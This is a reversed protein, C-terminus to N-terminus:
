VQVQCSRRQFVAGIFGWGPPRERGCASRVLNLYLPFVACVAFLAVVIFYAYQASKNTSVALMVWPWIGAGLSCISVLLGCVLATWWGLGRLAIAIVINPIGGLLISLAMTVQQVMAASPFSVSSIVAALAIGTGCALLLIVRPPIFLSALAFLFQGAAYIATLSTQFEPIPLELATKTRNSVVSLVSGISTRLSALAGAACFSSLAAIGLSVVIVPVVGLHKESPDVALIGPRTRLETEMVQPLPVYWYFLGLLVTFLAIVLYAWQLAVLNHTDEVNIDLIKSALVSSLTGGLAELGTGILIRATACSPPGCLSIALSTAITAKLGVYRLIAYGITPTLIGTGVYCASFMGVAQTHTKVIPISANISFLM